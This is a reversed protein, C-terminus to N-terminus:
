ARPDAAVSLGLANVLAPGGVEYPPAARGDSGLSRPLLRLSPGGDRGPVPAARDMGHCVKFM